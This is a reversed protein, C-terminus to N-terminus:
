LASSLSKTHTPTHMDTAHESLFAGVSSSAAGLLASAALQPSQTMLAQLTNVGLGGLAGFSRTDRLGMSNALMYLTSPTIGVGCRSALM